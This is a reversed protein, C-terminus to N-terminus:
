MGWDVESAERRASRMEGRSEWEFEATTRVQM